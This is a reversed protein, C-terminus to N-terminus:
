SVKEWVCVISRGAKYRVVPDLVRSVPVLWRDWFLIQAQNPVSQKLLLKNMFSTGMGLCDLYFIRKIRCSPPTLVQLASKNYRRYHGVSKDFPSYLSNFAPSVVIITGGPVLREAVSKLEGGDDEIHELVDIYIFCDAAERSDLDAVVGGRSSCCPPLQGAAICADIQARLAPDPELCLWYQQSGDCLIATTAGIGAGVEIVREGIFLGIKSAFYHKWNRSHAFLGLEKGGYAVDKM